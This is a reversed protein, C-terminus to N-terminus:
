RAFWPDNAMAKFAAESATSSSIRWDTEKNIDFWLLGKILPFEAKLTPIIQGIWAAKDGGLETSAMEGIIIPKNKAALVPYIDKFVQYFTQWGDGSPSTGWNYGDVCTWDVYTDGPYYDLPENWAEDPVSTVNPCFAWIVNTAGSSVFLDHVHRYAAIYKTSSNGNQAGSWPSWDGNMEAGFDVFLQKGLNRAANARATIMTDDDGAIIQDLVAGYLEWNVFPIRGARLDEATVDRTWDDQWAYYTLHLPVARGLKSTTAAISADGYYLGLLAGAEPVLIPSGVSGTGAIPSGGATFTSGGVAASGSVGKGGTAVTGAVAVSGGVSKGGTASNGGAAVSGGLNTGGMAMSGGANRTGAAGGAISSQIPTGGTAVTGGAVAGGAGGMAVQGGSGIDASNAGAGGVNQKGASGTPSGNGGATAPINGSGSDGSPETTGDSCGTIGVTLVLVLFQTKPAIERTPQQPMPPEECYTQLIRRASIMQFDVETPLDSV